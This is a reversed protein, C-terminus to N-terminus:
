GSGHYTGVLGGLCRQRVEIELKQKAIIQLDTGLFPRSVSGSTDVVVTTTSASGSDTLICDINVKPILTMKRLRLRCNIAESM